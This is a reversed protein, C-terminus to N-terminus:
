EEATYGTDRVIPAWRDREARLREALVAPTSSIATLEQRALAERLQPDRSGAEIARHLADVVPAPTGAPLLMAYWTEAVLEPLGLEAFVPVEPLRPSRAPATSALIRVAGARHQETLDGLVASVLAIRGATLDVLAPGTGRYAVHALDLGRARAMQAALLHPTSGPSPSAYPVEGRGRAWRVFGDLDRAPHSAAVAVGFPFAALASVPVFDTSVEYRTTRPYIHPYITFVSEPTCLITTGDPAAAKVAEVALRASAGPRNDVVAQPAFPGRLREAYLRAIIDAAGGGPYGVVVRAPRDLLPREVPQAAARRAAGAALLLSPGVRLVARRTPGRDPVM